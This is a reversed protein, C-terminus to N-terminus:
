ILPSIHLRQCLRRVDELLPRPIRVSQSVMINILKAFLTLREPDIHSYQQEQPYLPQNDLITNLENVTAQLNALAIAQADANKKPSQPAQYGDRPIQKGYHYIALTEGQIVTNGHGGIPGITNITRAPNTPPLLASVSHVLPVAQQRDPEVYINHLGSNGVMRSTSDHLDKITRKIGKVVDLFAEDHTGWLVVPKGDTPLAKLKAFPTGEWDTPRLIIPIVRAQNADHRALARKMEINYCFKSAIFNPSVLLLIIQAVNLRDILQKEWETGEIIDGDFWDNIIGLNRLTSLHTALEERLEQDKHSYSIFLDVKM